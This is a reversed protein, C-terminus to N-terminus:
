SNKSQNILKETESVVVSEQLIESRNWIIKKGFGLTNDTMKIQNVQLAWLEGPMLLAVPHKKLYNRMGDQVEPTKSNLVKAQFQIGKVSLKNLRDPLVTGAIFPNNKMIVSHLSNASSKFYFIGKQNDFAYFYVFCYPKGTNDICCVTACNQNLLFEIIAKDM